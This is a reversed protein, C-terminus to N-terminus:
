PIKRGNRPKPYLIEEVTTIHNTVSKIIDNTHDEGHNFIGLETCIKNPVKTDTDLLCFLTRDNIDYAMLKYHDFRLDVRCKLSFTTRHKPSHLFIIDHPENYSWVLTDMPTNKGVNNLNKIMVHIDYADHKTNM